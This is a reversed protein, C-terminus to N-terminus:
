STYHHCASTTIARWTDTDVIGSPNLSKSTQATEVATVTPSGVKYFGDITASKPLAGTDLLMQQLQRIWISDVPTNTMGATLRPMATVDYYCACQVMETNGQNLRTVFDGKHDSTMRIKCADERTAFPGLYAVWTPDRRVSTENAPQYRWATDCSKSTQLYHVGHNGNVAASLPPAAEGWGVMILTKGTCPQDVMPVGLGLPDAFTGSGDAGPIVFAGAVGCVIGLLASLAVALSKARM